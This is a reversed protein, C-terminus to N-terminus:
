RDLRTLGAERAWRMAQAMEGRTVPRNILPEDFARYMPHYQGMINVYTSPSLEEAVWRVFRDTGAVNNPMVLHRILLGRRAVGNSDVALEGV